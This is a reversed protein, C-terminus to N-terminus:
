SRGRVGGAHAGATGMERNEWRGVLNGRLEVALPIGIFCEVWVGGSVVRPQSAVGQAQMKRCVCM